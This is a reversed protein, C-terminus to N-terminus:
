KKILSVLYEPNAVRRITVIPGMSSSLTIDGYNLLNGWFSKNIETSTVNNLLYRQEKKIFIWKKHKIEDTSLTYRETYRQWILMFYVIQQILMIGILVATHNLLNLITGSGFVQFQDEIILLIIYIWWFLVNLSIVILLLYSPSQIFRYTTQIETEM